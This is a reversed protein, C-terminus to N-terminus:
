AAHEASRKATRRYKQSILFDGVPRAGKRNNCDLCASVLNNPEDLGGKSVPVVHDVTGAYINGCYVCPGCVGYRIRANSLSVSMVEATTRQSWGEEAAWQLHRQILDAFSARSGRIALDHPPSERRLEVLLAEAHAQDRAVRTRRRGNPLSIAAYWRGDITRQYVSGEHHRRM